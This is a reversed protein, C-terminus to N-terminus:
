VYNTRIRRRTVFHSVETKVGNLHSQGTGNSLPPLGGETPEAKVLFSQLPRTNPWRAAAFGNKRDKVQTM